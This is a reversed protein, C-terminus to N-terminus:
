ASFVFESPGAPLHGLATKLEDISWRHDSEFTEQETWCQQRTISGGVVGFVEGSLQCEPSALWAVLPSVNEPAWKDFGEQQEIRDGLGPTNETLRTRAVPAIANVRVGYRSLERAAVLTMMAIGSKASAYNIQGPNGRLGSGSSTNVVSADVTRGAKSESRWYVAAHHLPSFHGKLHVDIVSDWEAESMNVLMRDRLIGANNVLIDLGGFTSVALDVLDRASEWDSVSGFHAVADGGAAQIEDVVDQAANRVSGDGDLGGGTDNVVVRAGLRSFLLAHARGLGRGSGTIIATRGELSTM